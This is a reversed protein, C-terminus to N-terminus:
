RRPALFVLDSAYAGYLGGEHWTRGLDDTYYTGEEFTSAWLRGKV